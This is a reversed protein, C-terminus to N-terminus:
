RTSCRTPPAVVTSATSAPPGRWGAARAGKTACRRRAPRAAPSTRSTSAAVPATTARRVEVRGPMGRVPEPVGHPLGLLEIPERVGRREGLAAERAELKAPVRAAVWELAV